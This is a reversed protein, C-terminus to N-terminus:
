EVVSTPSRMAVFTTSYDCLPILRPRCAREYHRRSANDEEGERAFSFHFIHGQPCAAFLAQRGAKESAHTKM